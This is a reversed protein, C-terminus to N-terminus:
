SQHSYNRVNRSDREDGEEVKSGSGPLASVLLFLAWGAPEAAIPAALINLTVLMITPTAPMIHTEEM